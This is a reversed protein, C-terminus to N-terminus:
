KSKENEGGVKKAMSPAKLQKKAEEIKKNINKKQDSNEDSGIIEINMFEEPEYVDAAIGFQAACRKFCDSAAAKMDNGFDLPETTGKRFKVESRGYDGKSIEATIGGKDDLVRAVIHGKVVCTKTAKAVEFAELLPTEPVFDWNFGFVSDLVRRVYSKKVYSWNGGGKGARSYQYKRPTSNFIKQVQNENLVSKGRTVQKLELQLSEIKEQKSKAM